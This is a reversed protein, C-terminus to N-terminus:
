NFGINSKRKKVKALYPIREVGYEDLVKDFDEDERHEDTNYYLVKIEKEKVVSDLKPHFKQCYPCTPRGFYVYTAEQKEEKLLSTIEDSKKIEVIGADSCGALVVMLIVTIVIILNKM